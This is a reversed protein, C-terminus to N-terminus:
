IFLFFTFPTMDQFFFFIFHTMDQFFFYKKIKKRQLFSKQEHKHSFFCIEHPYIKAFWIWVSYAQSAM